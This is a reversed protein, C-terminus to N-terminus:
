KRIVQMWILSVNCFSSKDFRFNYRSCVLMSILTVAKQSYKECRSLPLHIFCSRSLQIEFLTFKQTFAKNFNLMPTGIVGHM